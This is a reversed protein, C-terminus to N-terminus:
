NINGANKLGESMQWKRCRARAGVEVKHQTCYRTGYRYERFACSACCRKVKIGHENMVFGLKVNKEIKM